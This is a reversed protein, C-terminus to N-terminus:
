PMVPLVIMSLISLYKIVYHMIILINQIFLLSLNMNLHVNSKVDLDLTLNQSLKCMSPPNYPTIIGQTLMWKSCNCEQSRLSITFKEGIMNIHKVEFLHEGPWSNLDYTM